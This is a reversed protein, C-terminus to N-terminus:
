KNPNYNQNRQQAIIGPLTDKLFNGLFNNFIHNGALTTNYTSFYNRKDYKMALTDFQFYSIGHSSCISDIRKVREARNYQLPLAEYYVPSEYIILKIDEKKLFEILKLFYRERKHSWLFYGKRPNLDRYNEIAHNYSHSPATYGSPWIPTDKGALMHFLGNAAKYFIFNSYYSYGIFPFKSAKFYASDMEEVVNSVEADKLFAAYRYTNFTNAVVSDFSEPTVYLLVAKPKPQHKIYTRLFLYNDAFDSHNQALNFSHYPIYKELVVPDIAWEAECPGHILLEAGITHRTLYAIKFDKNHMLGIHVVNELGKIVVFSLVLSLAIKFILRM